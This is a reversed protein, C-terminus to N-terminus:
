ATGSAFDHIHAFSPRTRTRFLVLCVPNIHTCNIHLQGGCMRFCPLRLTFVHVFYFSCLFCPSFWSFVFPFIPFLAFFLVVSCVFCVCCRVFNSLVLFIMYTLTLTRLSQTQKHTVSGTLRRAPPRHDEHSSQSTSYTSITTATAHLQSTQLNM